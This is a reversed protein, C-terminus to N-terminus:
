WWTVSVLVAILLLITPRGTMLPWPRSSGTLAGAADRQAVEDLLRQAHPRVPEHDALDV